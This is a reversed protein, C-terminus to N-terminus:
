QNDLFQNVNVEVRKVVESVDSKVFKEGIIKEYLEIYRETISNIFEEPMQPMKQGDLGQFGNEM